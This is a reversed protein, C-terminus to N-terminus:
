KTHSSPNTFRNLCHNVVASSPRIKLPTFRQRERYVFNHDSLSDTLAHNVTAKAKQKSSTAVNASCISLLVAEEVFMRPVGKEKNSLLAFRHIGNRQM